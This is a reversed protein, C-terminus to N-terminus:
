TDHTQGVHALRGEEVGDGVGTGLAGVIGEAGDIGVDAHHRHRVTPQIHEGFHVMRGLHRRCDDFKHIDRAQDLSGALALSQAVLKEGVDALHVSDDM